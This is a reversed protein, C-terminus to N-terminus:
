GRLTVFTNPTDRNRRNNRGPGHPKRGATVAVVAILLLDLPLTRAMAQSHAATVLGSAVGARGPPIGSLSYGILTPLALGDGFGTLCVAAVLAPM